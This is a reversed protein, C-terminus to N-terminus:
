KREALGLHFALVPDLAQGGRTLASRVYEGRRQLELRQKAYLQQNAAASEPYLPLTRLKEQDNQM